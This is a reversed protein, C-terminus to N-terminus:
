GGFNYTFRLMVERGRSIAGYIDAPTGAATGTGSGSFTVDTSSIWYRKNTLNRGILAVEWADDSDAVRITGDVLAYKPMVGRPNNAADTNLKSTYNVGGFLGLKLNGGLPTEYDFSASATWRPAQPLTQGALDQTANTSGPAFSCGMAPTQGGYCPANPFSSYTAKNYSVSGNLTLGELPTTYKVEAEAGRYKTAAANNITLIADLYNSVQQNKGKYTYAALNLLLVGGIRSKVGVEFGKITQPDYSLDTTPTFVSVGSNFGGSLFGHKYSGFITLDSSPRYSVTVEPSFDNWSDRPPNILTALVDDAPTIIFSNTNSLLKTLRKKEYSYRGGVDIEIVDIPKYIMQLFASYATGSQKMMYNNALFPTTPGAVGPGFLDVNGGYVLFISNYVARTRAYYLGGTFNLPGEYDTSIRLEESYQRERLGPNCAPLIIVYDGYNTCNDHNNGYVGSISTLTIEDSPNYNLELSSLGQKVHLFNDGNSKFKNLTAPITSLFRGYTSSVIEGGARCQGVSGSERVNPQGSVCSILQTDNQTGNTKSEGYSVKFRASFDDSPEWLLTGRVGFQRSRASHGYSPQYDFPATAPTTEKMDGRQRSYIGALRFGLTESVPGSVYGETRIEHSHFEYGVRARAEFRNTPDATRISVVGAPSNKGYFLAQPGKLVEIQEIDTEVMRRVGSKAIQVGDINFSVAQDAFPNTAPSNVGRISINGGQGAFGQPGIILQPVIRAVSDLNVIARRELEMSSVASVVTPVSMLTESRKRATVIIDGLGAEPSQGQAASAEGSASMDQAAVGSCAVLVSGGALLAKLFRRM